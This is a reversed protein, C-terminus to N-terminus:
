PAEPQIPGENRVSINQVQDTPIIYVKGTATDRLFLYRSNAALLATTETNFAVPEKFSIDYQNLDSVEWYEIRHIDTRVSAFLHLSFTLASLILFYALTWDKDEFYHRVLWGVPWFSLSLISLAALRYFAELDHFYAIAAGGWILAAFLVFNIRRYITTKAAQAYSMRSISHVGLFGGLSGFVTAVVSYRIGEMSAAIYDSLSFYNAVEVGFYGLFARSYLYGSVLFLASLVSLLATFNQSSLSIKFAERDSISAELSKVERRTKRLLTRITKVDPVSVEPDYSRASGM